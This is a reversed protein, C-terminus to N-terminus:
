VPKHVCEYIITQCFVEAAFVCRLVPRFCFSLRARLSRARGPDMVGRWCEIPLGERMGMEAINAPTFLAIHDVSETVKGLLGAQIRQSFYPNPTTLVLRGGPRLVKKASRFISQPSGVHEIIEGCVVVDFDGSPVERTFDLLQVRYGAARLNEVADPVVDIGCVTASSTVIKGHLWDAKEKSNTFHDVVGVDLVDKGRVLEELYAVRNRVPQRRTRQLHERMFALAKDANPDATVQTWHTIRKM